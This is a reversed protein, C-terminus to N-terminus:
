CFQLATVYCNLTNIIVHLEVVEEGIHICLCADPM